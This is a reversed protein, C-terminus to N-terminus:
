FILNNDQNKIIKFNTLSRPRKIESKMKIITLMNSFDQHYTKM